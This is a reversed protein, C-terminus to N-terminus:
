HPAIDAPPTRLWPALRFRRPLVGLTRTQIFQQAFAVVAQITQEDFPKSVAGLAGAFGEPIQEPNATLFVVAAGHDEVLRKAIQPGTVGDLLNVDVLALAPRHREAILFAGHSDMACGVVDCGADTLVMELEMALIAQDEVIM